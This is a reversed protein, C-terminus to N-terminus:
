ATLKLSDNTYDKNWYKEEAIMRAKVAEEFNDFNGLHVRKKNVKIVVEWKADRKHWCVGRVGSTNDKRIRQNRSQETKTGWKCNIPEYNGDNDIRELSYEISPRPGMDELFAEFSNKWRECITINRNGYDKFYENNPNTCREFMGHWSNYELPYKRRYIGYKPPRAM